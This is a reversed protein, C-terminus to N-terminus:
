ALIEMQFLSLAELDDGNHQNSEAPLTEASVLEM